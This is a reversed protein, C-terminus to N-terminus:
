KTLFSSLLGDYQESFHSGGQINEIELTELNRLERAGKAAHTVNTWTMGVCVLKLSREKIASFMIMAQKEFGETPARPYKRLSKVHEMVWKSAELARHEKSGLTPNVIALPQCFIPKSNSGLDGAHYIKEGNLM